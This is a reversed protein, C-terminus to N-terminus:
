EVPTCSVCIEQLKHRACLCGSSSVQLGASTQAMKNYSRHAPSLSVTHDALRPCTTSSICAQEVVGPPSVSIVYYFAPFVARSISLVFCELPLCRPKQKCRRRKAGLIQRLSRRNQVVQVCAGWQTRRIPWPVCLHGGSFQLLLVSHPVATGRHTCKHHCLSTSRNLPLCAQHHSPTCMTSHPATYMYTCAIQM